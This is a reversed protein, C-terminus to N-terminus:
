PEEGLETLELGLDRLVDNLQQIFDQRLTEYQKRMFVDDVHLDIMRNTRIIQEILDSAEIAPPVDSDNIM